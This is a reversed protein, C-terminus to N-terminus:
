RLLGIRGSSILAAMSRPAMCNLRTRLSDTLDYVLVSGSRRRPLSASGRSGGYFQGIVVDPAAGRITSPKWRTQRLVNTQRRNQPFDGSRAPGSPKAAFREGLLKSEQHLVQRHRCCRIIRQREETSYGIGIRM